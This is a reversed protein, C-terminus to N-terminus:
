EGELGIKTACHSILTKKKGRSDVSSIHECRKGGHWHQGSHQNKEKWNQLRMQLSLSTFPLFVYLCVIQDTIGVVTIKLNNVTVDAHKMTEPQLMTRSLVRSLLGDQGTRWVRLDYETTSLRSSTHASNQSRSFIFYIYKTM